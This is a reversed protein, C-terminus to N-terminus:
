PPKTAGRAWRAVVSLKPFDAAPQHLSTQISVFSGKAADLRRGDATPSGSKPRVIGSPCQTSGRLM